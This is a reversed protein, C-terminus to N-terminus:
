TKEEKARQVEAAQEALGKEVTYQPEYGFEERAIGPDIEFVPKLVILESEKNEDPQYIARADPTMRELIDTLYKIPRRDGQLDFIKRRTPPAALALGICRANDKVFQWAFTTRPDFEVHVSKGLMLDDLIQDLVASTYQRKVEDALRRGGPGYTLGFRLGVTDLGFKGTYHRAMVENFYKMHGYLTTPNVPDDESPGLPCVADTTAYVVKQIGLLRAAEFVNNVGECNIRIAKTSAEVIAAEPIFYALQVVHTIEHQKMTSILVDLDCIDGREIVVQAALDAIRAPTPSSEFGVVQHGEHVLYRAVHSGIFGTGGTILVRM